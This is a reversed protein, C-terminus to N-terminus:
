LYWNEDVTLRLHDIRKGIGTTPNAVDKPNLCLKIGITVTRAIAHVHIDGPGDPVPIEWCTGVHPPLPSAAGQRAEVDVKSMMAFVVSARM